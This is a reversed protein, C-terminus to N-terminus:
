KGSIKISGVSVAKAAGVANSVAAGVGVKGTGAPLAKTQDSTSVGTNLSRAKNEEYEAIIKRKMVAIPDIDDSDVVEQGKIQWISGIGAAIEAKLENIESEVSTRFVGGEFIALAGSKFVYRSATRDMYFQHLKTGM